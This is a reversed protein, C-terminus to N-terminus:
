PKIYFKKSGDRKIVYWKGDYAIFYSGSPSWLIPADGMPINELTDIFADQIHLICGYYGNSFSIANSDAPGWDPIYIRLEYGHLLNNVTDIIILSDTNLSVSTKLVFAIRGGDTSWAPHTANSDSIIQHDNTGDINKIWLGKKPKVYVFKKGDPSLDAYMGKGLYRKELTSRKIAYINTDTDGSILVWDGACSLYSFGVYRGEIKFILGLNRYNQHTDVEWLYIESIMKDIGAGGWWDRFHRTKWIEELFLIKNDPAWNPAQIFRTEEWWRKECSFLLIVLVILWRRM